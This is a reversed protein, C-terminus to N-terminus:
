LVETWATSEPSYGSIHVKLSKCLAKFAQFKPTNELLFAVQGAIVKSFGEIAACGGTMVINSAFLARLDRESKFISDCIAMAISRNDDDKRALVSTAQQHFSQLHFSLVLGDKYPMRVFGQSDVPSNRANWATSNSTGQAFSCFRRKMQEVLFRNNGFEENLEHFSTAIGNLNLVQCKEEGSLLFRWEDLMEEGITVIEVFFLCPRGDCIPLITTEKYGCEVVLGTTKGFAHLGAVPSLVFSVSAVDFFRFLIDVFSQKFFVLTFPNEVFLIRKRRPDVCLLRFFIECLLRKLLKRPREYPGDEKYDMLIQYDQQRYLSFDYANGELLYKINYSISVSPMSDGGIGARCCVTGIELVITNEENRFSAITM